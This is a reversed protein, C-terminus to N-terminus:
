DHSSIPSFTVSLKARVQYLDVPLRFKSGAATLPRNQFVNRRGACAKFEFLRNRGIRNNRKVELTFATLSADFIAFVFFSVIKESDLKLSSVAPGAAPELGFVQELEAKALHTLALLGCFIWIRPNLVSFISLAVKLEHGADVLSYPIPL